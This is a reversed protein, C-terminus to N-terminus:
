VGSHILLDGNFTEPFMYWSCRGFKFDRVAELTGIVLDLEHCDDVLIWPVRAALALAVDHRTMERDHQADVHVLDAGVLVDAPLEATTTIKVELSHRLWLEQYPFHTADEDYLSDVGLYSVDPVADIFALAAIAPGVGLEVIRRPQIVKAVARKFCAYNVRFDETRMSPWAKAAWQPLELRHDYSSKQALAIKRYISQDSM